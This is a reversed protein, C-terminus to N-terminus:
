RMAAFALMVIALFLWAIEVWRLARSSTLPFLGALVGVLLGGVHAAGDIFPLVASLILNILLLFRLPRGLLWAVEENLVLDRRVGLVVLAGLLAFAGGSAGDSRHNGWFYSALGGGIAGAWFVALLRRAGVMPEYVSGLLWLGIANSVLHWFDGHLVASTWFRWLDGDNVARALRGGLLARAYPTRPWFAADVFSFLGLQALYAAAAFHIGVISAM